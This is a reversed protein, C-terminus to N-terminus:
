RGGAFDLQTGPCAQYLEVVDKDGIDAAPKNPVVFHLKMNTNEYVEVAITAPVEVGYARFMAHPDARLRARLKGSDDNWIDQVIKAWAQNVQNESRVAM